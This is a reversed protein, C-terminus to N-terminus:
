TGAHLSVSEIARAHECRARTTRHRASNETRRLCASNDSCARQLGAALGSCAQQVAVAARQVGEFVAAAMHSLRAGCRLYPRSCSQPRHRVASRRSTVQGNEATATPVAQEMGNYRECMAVSPCCGMSLSAQKCDAADLAAACRRFSGETLPLSPLADNETGLGATAREAGLRFKNRSAQRCRKRWRALLVEAISGSLM